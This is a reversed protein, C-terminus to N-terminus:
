HDHTFGEPPRDLFSIIGGIRGDDAVDLIDTGTAFSEGSGLQIEWPVRVVNHHHQPETRALFAVEGVHDTLDRKFKIFAAPGNMVAAQGRNVVDETFTETGLRGQEAEDANWFRVYREAVDSMVEKAPFTTDTMPKRGDTYQRRHGRAQSTDIVESTM